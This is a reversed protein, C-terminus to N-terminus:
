KTEDPSSSSSFKGTSKASQKIRVEGYDPRGDGAQFTRGAFIRAADIFDVAHKRYNSEAKDDDWEFAIDM